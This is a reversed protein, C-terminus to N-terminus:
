NIYLIYIFFLFEFIGERCQPGGNTWKGDVCQTFLQKISSCNKVSKSSCQCRYKISHGHRIYAGSQLEKRDWENNMDDMYYEISHKGSDPLRCKALFRSLFFSWLGIM